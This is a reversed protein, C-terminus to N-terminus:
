GPDTMGATAEHMAAFMERCFQKEGADETKLQAKLYRGCIGSAEGPGHSAATDRWFHAGDAYKSGNM